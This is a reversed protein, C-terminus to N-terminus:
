KKRSKAAVPKLTVISKPLPLARPQGILKAVLQKKTSLGHVSVKLEGALRELQSRDHLLFFTEFEVAKTGRQMASWETAIDIGAMRALDDVHDWYLRPHRHDKDEHRLVHIVLQESLTVIRDISLLSVAQWTAKSSHYQPLKGGAQRISIGALDLDGAVVGGFPETQLWARMREVIDRHHGTAIRDAVLRRLWAHRWGRIREGLQKGRQQDIKKQEAPTRERRASSGAQSAKDAAKKQKEGHAADSLVKWQKADFCRSVIRDTKDGPAPIEAVKLKKLQAPTLKTADFKPQRYMREDGIMDDVTLAGTDSELLSEITYEISERTGYEMILEEQYTPGRKAYEVVERHRKEILKMVSPYDRYKKIPRLHAASMEGAILRDRWYPWRHCMEAIAMLNSATGQAIGMAAAADGVTMGLQEVQYRLWHAKRLDGETRREINNRAAFAAADLDDALDRRIRAQLSDWGLRTAAAKRRKGALVEYHGIPGALPRVTIPEDQQGEQLWAMMEVIEAETSEPNGPHDRLKELPIAVIQDQQGSVAKPRVAAPDDIPPMAATGRGNPKRQALRPTTKTDTM